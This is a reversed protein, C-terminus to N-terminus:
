RLALTLGPQSTRDGIRLVVPVSPGSLAGAPIQLNVQIIGEVTGPAGGAYLVKAAQGGVMASVPLAPPPLSDATVVTGDQGAPSLQGAGTAYLVIVSGATSPNDAANMTGDQNLILGQGGGSDDAAFIGPSSPTVTMSFPDSLRGQYEVQVQTSPSSLGFPVIANVQNAGASEMPGPVGDFLVRTNALRTAVLGNPDLQLGAPNAPGLNSGFIAVLEGPSLSDKAYSAANAVAGIAPQTIVGGDGNPGLPGYVVVTKSFTPVYVKGNVVTPSVFKAVDGMADRDPNMQSNWLENALNSADFAHLMGPASGDNYDGTTEWLIGTGSRDGNASITMGVRGYRVPASATSIPSTDFGAGTLQFCKVGEGEGQVYVYTNGTRSWVAFNFISFQAVSFATQGSESNVSGSLAMSDTDLIYLDGLKDAGILTNAGPILAPGASLDMDNDSMSKWDTPTFSAARVAAAGSLKLFTQSFNQLGDYEGNAAMAYVNGQDDAALGRGSQWISGGQGSPTTLFVGLQRTLNSADYSMLWGHWPAQDGHSGFAVYVANNALLLGPRQIHQRPDFQVEGTGDVTGPAVATIAVPGNLKEAGSQLDLAHLSLVPAGNQFTDSVVYLVGRQLDIAGTGLIGVEGAADGYPGFLLTSPVSPGLNVHWLLTISSGSDADYAYVSNHMTSVFLVNQPPRGPVMSLSSVYLAQSYVQGDVPFTGIKGFTSPSVSTPSLQAEQLNANTRSNSGNATLVNVQARTISCGFIVLALIRITSYLASGRMM